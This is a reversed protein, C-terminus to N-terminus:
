LNLTQGRGKSCAKEAGRCAAQEMERCLSPEVDRYGSLDARRCAAQDAGRYAAQNAPAAYYVEGPGCLLRKLSPGSPPDYMTKEYIPIVRKV